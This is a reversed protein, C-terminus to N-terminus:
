HQNRRVSAALNKSSVVERAEDIERARLQKRYEDPGLKRFAFVHSVAAQHMAGTPGAERVTVGDALTANMMAEDLAKADANDSEMLGFVGKFGRYLPDFHKQTGSARAMQLEPANELRDQEEWYEVAAKVMARCAAEYGGGFGSIEGMDATWEVYPM